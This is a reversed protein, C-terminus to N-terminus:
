DYGNVRQADLPADTDTLTFSSLQSIGDDYVYLLGDADLEDRYMSVVDDLQIM